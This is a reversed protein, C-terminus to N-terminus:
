ENDFFISVTLSKRADNDWFIEKNKAEFDLQSIAALGDL